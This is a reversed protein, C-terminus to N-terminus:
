SRLSISVHPKYTVAKLSASIRTSRVDPSVVANIFFSFGSASATDSTGGMFVGNQDFLDFLNVNNCNTACADCVEPNSDDGRPDVVMEAVEHSLTHAYVKENAKNNVTHNNDAVTLNQGFVLSYCYPTGSDTM